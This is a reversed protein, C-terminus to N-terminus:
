QTVTIDRICSKGDVDLCYAKINKDVQVESLPAGTTTKQYYLKKEGAETKVVVINGAPDISVVKGVIETSSPLVTIRRACFTGGSDFCDVRVMSGAKVMSIPLPECAINEGAPAGEKVSLTQVEAPANITITVEKGEPQKIVISKGGPDISVVEGEMTQSGAVDIVKVNKACTKDELQFCTMEVVMGPKVNEIGEQLVVTRDGTPTNVVITKGAADVAVVKGRVVEDAYVVVASIVVALATVFTMAVFLPILKKMTGSEKEATPNLNMLQGICKILLLVSLPPETL